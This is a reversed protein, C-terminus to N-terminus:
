VYVRAMQHPCLPLAVFGYVLQSQLSVSLGSAAFVRKVQIYFSIILLDPLLHLPLVSIKLFKYAIIGVKAGLIIIGDESFIVEIEGGFEIVLLEFFCELFRYLAVRVTKEIFIAFPLYYVM